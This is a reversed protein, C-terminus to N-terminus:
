AHLIAEIMCLSQQNHVIEHLRHLMVGALRAHATMAVTPWDRVAMDTSGLVQGMVSKRSIGLMLPSASAVLDQLQSLLQLNHEMSKGFGIGPDFCMSQEAIGAQLLEARRLAFFAKVEEVVNDYHPADQMTQPTGRMHMIVVGCDWTACLRAMDPDRRLGSVDNVIDAGATLAAEAVDAKTTDVSILGDWRDRLAAIVPQVRQKEEEASVPLAGPRTSEGGVDVIAAGDEVLRLGHRVAADVVFHQGGDSFSDPTVNLIGMIKAHRTLDVERGRCRWIM